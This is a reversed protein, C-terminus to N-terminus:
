RLRDTGAPQEDSEKLMSVNFAAVLMATPIQAPLKSHSSRGACTRKGCHGCVGCAFHLYAFVAERLDEPTM